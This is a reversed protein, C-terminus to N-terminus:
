DFQLPWTYEDVHRYTDVLVEDDHKDDDDDPEIPPGFEREAWRAQQRKIAEWSMGRCYERIDDIPLYRSGKKVAYDVGNGRKAVVMMEKEVQGPRMLTDDETNGFTQGHQTDTLAQTFVERRGFQLV